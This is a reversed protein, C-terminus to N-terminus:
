NSHAKYLNTQIHEAQAEKTEYM